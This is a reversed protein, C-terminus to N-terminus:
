EDLIKQNQKYFASKKLYGNEIKKRNQIYNQINELGCEELIQKSEPYTWTGDKNPHIFKKTITRACRKNFNELMKIQKKNYEWSESGYLLISEVVTRYIRAMIPPNAGERSLLKSLRRWISQAKELNKKIATDDENKENIIRGLYKFERVIEIEKGFVTFKTTQQKKKNELFNNRNKIKERNKKCAKTSQHKPGVDRVQIGCLECKPLEEEELIIATDNNHMHQFHRRMQWRNENQFPCEEVPCKIVRGRPMSFQYITTAVFIEIPQCCVLIGEAKASNTKEDNLRGPARKCGQTEKHKQLHRKQVVKQCRECEVDEQQKERYTDGKGTVKREYADKSM